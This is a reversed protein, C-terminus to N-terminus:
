CNEYKNNNTSYNEQEMVVNMLVTVDYEALFRQFYNDSCVSRARLEEITMARPRSRDDLQWRQDEKIPGYNTCRGDKPRDINRMLFALRHPCMRYANNGRKPDFIAFPIIIYETDKHEEYPQLGGDWAAPYCEMCPMGVIGNTFCYPCNGWEEVPLRMLDTM